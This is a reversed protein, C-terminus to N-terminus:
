AKTKGKCAWRPIAVRDKTGGDNVHGDAVKEGKEDIM